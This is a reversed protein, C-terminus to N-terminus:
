RKGEKPPVKLLDDKAKKHGKMPKFVYFYATILIPIAFFILTVPNVFVWVLMIALTVMGCYQLVKYFVDSSIM